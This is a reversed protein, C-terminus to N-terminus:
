WSGIPGKVYSRPNQARLSRNGGGRPPSNSDGGLPGNGGIDFPGGNDNSIPVNWGNTPLGGDDRIPSPIGRQEIYLKGIPFNL